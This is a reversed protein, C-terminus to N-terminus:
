FHNIFTNSISSFPLGKAKQVEKENECHCTERNGSGHFFFSCSMRAHSCQVSTMIKLIYDQCTEHKKIVYLM